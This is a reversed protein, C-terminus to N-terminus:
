LSPKRHSPASALAAHMEQAAASLCLCVALQRYCVLHVFPSMRAAAAAGAAGAGSAALDAGAAVCVFVDERAVPVMCLLLLLQM